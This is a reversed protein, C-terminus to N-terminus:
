RTDGNEMLRRFVPYFINAITTDNERCYQRLMEQEVRTIPVIIRKDKIVEQKPRGVYNSKM